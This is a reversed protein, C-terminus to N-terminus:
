YHLALAVCALVCLVVCRDLLALGREFGAPCRDLTNVLRDLANILTALYHFPNM